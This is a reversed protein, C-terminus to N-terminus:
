DALSVGHSFWYAAYVFAAVDTRSAGSVSAIEWAGFATEPKAQTQQTTPANHM